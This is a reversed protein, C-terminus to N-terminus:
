VHSAEQDRGLFRAMGARTTELEIRERFAATEAALRNHLAARRTADWFLRKTTVAADVNLTNLLQQARAEPAADIATALGMRHLDDAGHRSDLTLWQQAVATGVREPLLATWGGDPAFGVKAYYPQVFADPALVALDCAFLLGASGGTIAGRAATAFLVPMAVMRSVCDQLRPVVQEAYATATGNLAADHFRAVDGGTSFNRGGTLLAVQAGSASLADLATHLAALLGPELANSRPANLAIHFCPAGNALPRMDTIIPGTM